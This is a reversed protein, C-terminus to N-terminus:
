AQRSGGDGSVAPVEGPGTDADDVQTKFMLTVRLVPCTRSVGRAAHPINGLFVLLRNPRPYVSAVIDDRTDNFLVTEGAWNPEWAAHPYYVATYSNPARSDTHITGDSGYSQANAYCRYLTHGIFVSPKLSTWLDYLFPTTRQLEDECPYKETKKGGLKKHGAFHKHWFSYVDTRGHSKWGFKWGDERLFKDVLAREAESLLDDVIFAGPAITRVVQESV